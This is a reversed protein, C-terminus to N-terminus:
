DRNSIRKVGYPFGECEVGKTVVRESLQSEEEGLEGVADGFGGDGVEGFHEWRARAGGSGRVRRGHAKSGERRTDELRLHRPCISDSIGLPFRYWLTVSPRACFIPSCGTDAPRIPPHTRTPHQAILYSLYNATIIQCYSLAQFRFINSLHMGAAALYGFSVPKRDELEADRVHLVPLHRCSEFRERHTDTRVDNTKAVTDHSSCEKRRKGHIRCM